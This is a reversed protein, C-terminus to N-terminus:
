IHHDGKATLSPPLAASPIAQQVPQSQIFAIPLTYQEIEQLSQMGNDFSTLQWEKTGQQFCSPGQLTEYESNCVGNISNLSPVGSYIGQFPNNSISISAGTAYVEGYNKLMPQNLTPYATYM